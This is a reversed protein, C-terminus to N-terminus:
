YFSLRKLFFWGMLYGGENGENIALTLRDKLMEYSNYCPLDLTRTCTHAVPM